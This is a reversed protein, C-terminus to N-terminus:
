PHTYQGTYRLAGWQLRYAMGGPSYTLEGGPFWDDFTAEVDAKYTGNQTLNWLLVQSYLIIYIYIVILM